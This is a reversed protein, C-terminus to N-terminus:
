RLRQERSVRTCPRLCRHGTTRGRRSWCARETMERRTGSATLAPATAVQGDSLSRGRCTTGLHPAGTSGSTWSDRWSPRTPPQQPGQGKTPPRQFRRLHEDVVARVKPPARRTLAIGLSRELGLPQSASPPPLRVGNRLVPSGRAGDYLRDVTPLYIWAATTAGDEVLAVVVGFGPRGAM